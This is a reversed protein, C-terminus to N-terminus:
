SGSKNSGQRWVNLKWTPEGKEAMLLKLWSLARGTWWELPEGCVHERNYASGKGAQDSAKIKKDM